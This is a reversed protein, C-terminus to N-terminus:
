VVNMVRTLHTSKVVQCYDTITNCPRIRLMEEGKLVAYARQRNEASKFKAVYMNEVEKDIWYLLYVGDTTKNAKDYANNVAWGNNLIRITCKKYRKRLAMVGHHVYGIIDRTDVPEGPELLVDFPIEEIGNMGEIENIKHWNRM